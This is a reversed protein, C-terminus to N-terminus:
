TVIATITERNNIVYSTSITLINPVKETVDTMTYYGCHLIFMKLYLIVNTIELGFNTNAVSTTPIDHKRSVHIFIIESVKTVRKLCKTVYV